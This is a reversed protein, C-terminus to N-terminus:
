LIARYIDISLPDNQNTKDHESMPSNRSVKLKSSLGINRSLAM